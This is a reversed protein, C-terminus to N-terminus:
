ELWINQHPPPILRAAVNCEQTQQSAGLNSGLVKANPVFDQDATKTRCPKLIHVHFELRHHHPLDNELWVQRHLDQLRRNQAVPVFLAFPNPTTLPVASPAVTLLVARNRVGLAVECVSGPQLVIAELRLSLQLM